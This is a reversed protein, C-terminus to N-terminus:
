DEDAGGEGGDEREAGQADGVGARDGRIRGLVLAEAHGLGAGVVAGAGRARMRACSGGGLVVVLTVPLIDLLAGAVLQAARERGRRLLLVGGRCSSPRVMIRSVSNSWATPM